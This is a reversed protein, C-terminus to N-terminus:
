NVITPAIDDREPFRRPAEFTGRFASWTFVRSLTARSTAATERDFADAMRIAM